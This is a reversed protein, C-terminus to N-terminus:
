SILNILFVFFVFLHLSLTPLNIFNIFNYLKDPKALDPLALYLQFCVFIVRIVSFNQQLRVEVSVRSIQLVYVAVANNTNCNTILINAQGISFKQQTGCKAFSYHTPKLVPHLIQRKIQTGRV